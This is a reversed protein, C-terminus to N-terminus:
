LMLDTAALIILHINLSSCPINLSESYWYRGAGWHSIVFPLGCSWEPSVWPVGLEGAIVSLSLWVPAAPLNGAITLKSSCPFPSLCPLCLHTSGSLLFPLPSSLWCNINQSSNSRALGQTLSKDHMEESVRWLGEVFIAIIKVADM